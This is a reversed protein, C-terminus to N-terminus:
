GQDQGDQNGGEAARAFGAGPVCPEPAGGGPLLPLRVVCVSVHKKGNRVPARDGAARGCALAYASIQEHHDALEIPRSTGNTLDVRMFMTNRPDPEHVYETPRLGELDFKQEMM